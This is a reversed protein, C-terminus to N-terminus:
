TENHGDRYIKRTENQEVLLRRLEESLGHIDTIAIRHTNRLQFGFKKDMSKFCLPIYTYMSGTKVSLLGCPQAM